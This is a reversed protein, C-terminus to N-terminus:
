GFPDKTRAWSPRVLQRRRIALLLFLIGLIFNLIVSVVSAEIGFDGGTLWAPGDIAPTLWSPFQTEGSNPMGFIGDQLFNWGFHIGWVLWLRRTLWFAAILLIDSLVIAGSTWLTANANALHAAGFTAAVIILALWSGLWEEVLRLLILRFLLVQAFAGIGFRLFAHLIVLPSGVAEVRYYGSAAMALVMGGVLVLSIGFGTGVEVLGGSLAMEHAPRNEVYKVYLRYLFWLVLLSVLDDLRVLVANMIGSTNGIADVILNNHPLMYVALFLSAIIIRILPFQMIKGLAKEPHRRTFLDTSRTYTM